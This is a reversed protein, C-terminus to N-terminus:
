NGAPRSWPPVVGNMRAYAIMQGLHEHQDAVFIIYLAVVSREQGFATLKGPALKAAAGDLVTKQYAYSEKLHRMVEAKDSVKELNALLERGTGMNLGAPPGSGLAMPMYFYNESAVHMLTESVSRVGPGPRWAYKDAPIADALDLLKKEVQAMDSLYEATLMAPTANPGAEQALAPTALLGLLLVAPAHRLM